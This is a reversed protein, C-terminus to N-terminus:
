KKKVWKGGTYEQIEISYRKVFKYDEETVVSYAKGNKFFFLISLMGEAPISIFSIM